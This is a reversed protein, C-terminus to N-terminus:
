KIIKAIQKFADNSADKLMEFLAMEVSTPHVGYALLKNITLQTNEPKRSAICDTVLHVEFKKDILDRCTQYVCIHSEIGCIIIQDRNIKHIENMFNDESCCSFAMKIIPPTNSLLSAIEPHTPGLGTPYQETYIIPIDLIQSGRVLKKLNELLLPYNYMVSLLKTQVDIIVLVSRENKLKM